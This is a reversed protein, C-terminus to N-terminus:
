NSDGLTITTLLFNNFYILKILSLTHSYLITIYKHFLIVNPKYYWVTNTTKTLLQKYIHLKFFKFYTLTDFYFSIIFYIFVNIIKKRTDLFSIYVFFLENM